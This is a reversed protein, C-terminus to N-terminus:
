GQGGKGSGNSFSPIQSLRLGRKKAQERAMDQYEKLRAPEWIQFTNSRGVFAVQEAIGAFEIMEAPLIIRGETDFSLQVSGGFITTAILDKEEPDIDLKDLNESLTQMHSLTCAELAEHHLSRFVIVGQFDNAPLASRFSAPVSVRGKKDIKNNYTSLFLTM